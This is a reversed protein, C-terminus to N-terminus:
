SDLDIPDPAEGGLARVVEAAWPNTRLRAAYLRLPEAAGVDLLVEDRMFRPTVAEVGVADRRWTELPRAKRGRVESEVALLHVEEPDVAVLVNPTIAKRSQRARAIFAFFAGVLPIAALSELPLTSFEGIASPERPLLPEALERLERRHQERYRRATELREQESQENGDGPPPTM